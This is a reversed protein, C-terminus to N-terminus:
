FALQKHGSIVSTINMCSIKRVQNRMRNRAHDVQTHPHTLTTSFYQDDQVKSVSENKSWTIETGPVPICGEASILDLSRFRTDLKVDSHTIGSRWLRKKQTVWQYPSKKKLYWLSRYYFCDTHSLLQFSRISLVRLEGLLNSLSTIKIKKLSINCGMASCSALSM